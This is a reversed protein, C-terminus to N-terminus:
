VVLAPAPAWELQGIEPEGDSYRPDVVIRNRGTRKAEYLAADARALAAEISETPSCTVVGFSAATPVAQGDIDIPTRAISLRLREAIDAATSGKTAPMLIIFEEGGFRALLDTQRLAEHVRQAVGVIVADGGAHGHRDNIAKFGDLDFAVLASGELRRGALELFARRNLLGTLHDTRALVSLRALLKESFMIILCIAMTFFFTLTISVGITALKPTVFLFLGDPQQILNYAARVGYWSATVICAFRLIRAGVSPSARNILGLEYAMWGLAIGIVFSTSVVRAWITPEILNFYSVLAMHLVVLAALVGAPIPKAQYAFFGSLMLMFGSAVALNAIMVLLSAPLFATFPLLGSSIGCLLSGAAWFPLAREAPFVRWLALYIVGMIVQMVLLAIRLTNIDIEVV